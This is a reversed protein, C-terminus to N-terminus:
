DRHLRNEAWDSVARYLHQGVSEFPRLAVQARQGAHLEASQSSNLTMFGIFRPSLLEFNLSSEKGSSEPKDRVALSGGNPVCLTTDLPVVSARPEIRSLSSQVLPLNPLYLRVNQGVHHRFARIDSQAISLRVEKAAEDGISLIEHGKALYVGVWSELSRGVIKGSRPARVILGRVEDQIENRRELLTQLNEEEAQRQAMERNLEHLRMKIRSEAVQVALEALEFELDPNALEALLQGQEVVDGACVHIAQLFGASEARVITRPAYGIVAPATVAGPWPVTLLIVVAATLGGVSVISLRRWSAQTRVAGARYFSVLRGVTTSLWVLVALASLVIGAGELLTAATLVLGWFVLNRWASSAFGYVRVVLGRPGNWNANTTKMGFLTRRILSSLYQRGQGYLNPLELLDSFIYYGDFRMLPNANFLLTAVSATIMVNFCIHNLVGPATRSWVMTAIAALFLEVYMGAAAVQIRAWKSRLRWSSTVDVYALPAFLIFIVGAERVEGGLRKCAVGHGCEHFLKLVLWALALWIWNGAALIGDSSSGLRHSNVVLDRLAWAIVALWVFIAPFSFCWGFLPEIKEFFRDPHFLPLQISLPSLRGSRRGPARTESVSCANDGIRYDKQDTDLGTRHIWHCIAVADSATFGCEPCAHLTATLIERVSKEGDLLSIFTYEAMGIRYFRGNVPDEVVYCSRGGFSQPRFALERRLTPSACDIKSTTPLEIPHMAM